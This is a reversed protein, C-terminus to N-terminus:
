VKRVATTIFAIAAGALTWGVVTDIAMVTTYNDPWADWNALYVPGVLAGFIGVLVVTFWRRFLGAGANAALQSMLAAIYAAVFNILLGKAFVRPPMPESGEAQYYLRYVPGAKHRAEFDRMQEETPSPHPPAPVIYVGTKLDAAKLAQSIATEAPIPHVVNWHYDLVMWSVAGWAFVIIAGILAALLPRLM